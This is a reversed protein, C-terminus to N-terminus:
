CETINFPEQPFLALNFFVNLILIYFIYAFEDVHPFSMVISKDFYLYQPFNAHHTHGSKGLIFKSALWAPKKMQCRCSDAFFCQKKLPNRERQQSFFDVNVHCNRTHLRVTPHLQVTFHFRLYLNFFHYTGENVWSRFTFWTNVGSSRM